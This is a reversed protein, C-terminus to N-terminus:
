SCSGGAGLLSCSWAEVAGPQRLTHARQEAGDRQLEPVASCLQASTGSCSPHGPLFVNFVSGSISTAKGSVSAELVLKKKEKERPFVSTLIPSM